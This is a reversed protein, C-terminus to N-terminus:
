KEDSSAQEAHGALTRPRHRGCYAYPPDSYSATLGCTEGHVRHAGSGAIWEGDCRPLQADAADASSLLLGALERAEDPELVDVANGFLVTVYGHEAYASAGSM